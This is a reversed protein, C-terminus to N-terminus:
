VNGCLWLMWWFEGICMIVLEGIMYAFMVSEYMDHM